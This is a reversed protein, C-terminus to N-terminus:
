LFFFYAAGLKAQEEATGGELRMITRGNPNLLKSDRVSGIKQDIMNYIGSGRVYGIQQNIHNYWRNGEYYALTDGRSNFVQNESLFLIKQDGHNIMSVDYMDTTIETVRACSASILVLALFVSRLM